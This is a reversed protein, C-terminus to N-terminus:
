FHRVLQENEIMVMVGRGFQENLVKDLSKGSTLPEELVKIAKESLLTGKDTKGGNAIIGYLKAVNRANSYGNM